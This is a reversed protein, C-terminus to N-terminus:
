ASRVTSEATMGPRAFRSGPIWLRRGEIDAETSRGPRCELRGIQKRSNWRAGSSSLVMRTSPVMFAFEVVLGLIMGTFFRAFIPGTPTRLDRQVVGRASM